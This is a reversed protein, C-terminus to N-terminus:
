TPADYLHRVARSITVPAATPHYEGPLVEFTIDLNPYGRARLRKVLDRAYGVEDEMPLEAEARLSAERAEPSMQERHRDDGAPNEYEGISVYVRAPLDDHAKAYREETEFIVKPGYWYSPSGIGYRRFASPRSLLMHTAFLGGLSYGFVGFDDRAVDFRDLIWPKLEDELFGAFHDAGQMMAPNGEAARPDAVPSFDRGRLRTTEAVTVPRYGVGVVLLPEIHGSMALLRVTELATGFFYFADLVVLAGTAAPANECAGVIIRFEDGVRASSLYHVQTDPLAMEDDATM